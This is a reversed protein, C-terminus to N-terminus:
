DTEKPATVDKASGSTDGAAGQGTLKAGCDPCTKENCPTGREHAETYGCDPCVCTDTGGDGETDGGTGQAKTSVVHPPSGVLCLDFVSVAGTDEDTAPRVDFTTADEGELSAKIAAMVEDSVGGDRVLITAKDADPLVSVYGAIVPTTEKDDGEYAAVSDESIVIRGGSRLGVVPSAADATKTWAHPGDEDSSYVYGVLYTPVGLAKVADTTMYEPDTGDAPGAGTIVVKMASLESSFDLAKRMHPAVLVATAGIEAVLGITKTKAEHAVESVLWSRGCLTLSAATKMKDAHHVTGEWGMEALRALGKQVHVNDHTVVVAAIDQVHPCHKLAQRLIDPGPDILVAEGGGRMLLGFSLDAVKTTQRFDTGLVTITLPSGPRNLGLLAKLKHLM